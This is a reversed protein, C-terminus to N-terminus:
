YQMKTLVAFLILMKTSWRASGIVYILCSIGTIVDYGWTMITVNEAMEDLPVFTGVDFFGSKCWYHILARFEVHIRAAATVQRPRLSCSSKVRSSQLFASAAFPPRALLYGSTRHLKPMCIFISWISAPLYTIFCIICKICSNNIKGRYIFSRIRTVSLFIRIKAATSVGAPYFFICRLKQHSRIDSCINYIVPRLISTQFCQLFSSAQMRLKYRWTM